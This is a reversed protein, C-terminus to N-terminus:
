FAGCAFTAEGSIVRVGDHKLKQMGLKDAESKPLVGKFDADPPAPNDGSVDVSLCVLTCVATVALMVWFLRTAVAQRFTDRVMWRVTRIVAPLNM